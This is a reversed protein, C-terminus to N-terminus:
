TASLPPLKQYRWVPETTLGRWIALLVDKRIGSNVNVSHESASLIKQRKGLHHLDPKFWNCFCSVTWNEYSRRNKAPCFGVHGGLLRVLLNKPPRLAEVPAKDISLGGLFWSRLVIIILPLGESGITLSRRSGPALGAL